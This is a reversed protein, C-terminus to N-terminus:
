ESGAVCGAYKEGVASGSTHLQRIMYERGGLGINVGMKISDQTSEDGRAKTNGGVKMGWKM